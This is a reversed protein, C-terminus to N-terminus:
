RRRHLVPLLRGVLHGGLDLLLDLELNGMDQENVDNTVRLKRNVFLVCYNFFQVLNNASAFLKSSGFGRVTQYPDWSAIPHYQDKVGVWFRRRLTRHLDTAGELFM